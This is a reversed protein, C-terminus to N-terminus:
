RSVKLNAMEAKPNAVSTYTLGTTLRWSYAAGGSAYLEVSDGPCISTNHGAVVIVIDFM